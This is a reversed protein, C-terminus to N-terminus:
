ESKFLRKLKPPSDMREPSVSLTTLERSLLVKAFWRTLRLWERSVERALEKLWGKFSTWFERGNGGENGFCM